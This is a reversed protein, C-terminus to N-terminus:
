SGGRLNITLTARNRGSEERAYEVEDVAQDIIFIGFGHDQSGDFAPPPVAAPDFKRGWDYLRFVLQENSLGAEIRVPRDSANRYAHKIINVVAENVALEILDIRSRDISEVPARACSNRVFERVRALENLDSNIELYEESSHMNASDATEMIRVAICTFDDDFLESQTFDVIDQWINQILEVPDAGAHQQVFAVLRNEGYM